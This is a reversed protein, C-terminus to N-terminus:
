AAVDEACSSCLDPAAWRCGDDCAVNQTCGCARCRPSGNLEVDLLQAGARTIAWTQVGPVPEVLGLERLRGLARSVGQPPSPVDQAIADRTVVGAAGTHEYAAILVLRGLHTLRDRTVLTSM